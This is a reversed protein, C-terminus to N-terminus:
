DNLPHAIRALFWFSVTKYISDSPIICQNQGWIDTNETAADNSYRM